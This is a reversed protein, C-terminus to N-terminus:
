DTLSGFLSVIWNISKQSTKQLLEGTKDAFRDISTESAPALMQGPTQYGQGGSLGNSQGSNPGGNLGGGAAPSQGNPTGGSDPNPVATEQTGGNQVYYYTEGNKLKVYTGQEYVISGDNQAAPVNAYGSGSGAGGSQYGSSSQASFNDSSNGSVLQMGFAAGAALLAGYLLVKKANRRM